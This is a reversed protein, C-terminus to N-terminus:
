ATRRRSKAQAALAADLTERKLWGLSVLIEGLLGGRKRQVELASELQASTIQNSHLLMEGLRTRIASVVQLSNGLDECTVHWYTAAAAFLESRAAVRRSPGNAPTWRATADSATVRM